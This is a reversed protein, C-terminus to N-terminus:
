NFLMVIQYGYPAALNCLVELDCPRESVKGLICLIISCFFLLSLQFSLDFLEIILDTIGAYNGFFFEVDVLDVQTKCYGDLIELGFLGKIVLDHSDGLGIRQLTKDGILRRYALGQHALLLAVLDFDDDFALVGGFALNEM